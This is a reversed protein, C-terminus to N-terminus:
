RPRPDRWMPWVTPGGFPLAIEGTVAFGHRSYFALNEYKSSELYAPIGETDCRELVPELLASGIGRGQAAKRTGLVGLYWHPEKPHKHEVRNLSLLARATSRGLARVLDPAFRLTTLPSILAHGPPAWLAAGAAPASTTWVTGLPLYHARMQTSFLGALRRSRSSEDKLIWALIPDDWFADALAEAVPGLDASTAAVVDPPQPLGPRAQHGGTDPQGTDPHGSDPHGSDPHGSDPHGSDPHDNDPHDSDTAV